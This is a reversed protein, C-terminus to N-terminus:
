NKQYVRVWDVEFKVPFETKSPDGGGAGIALNLIIHQHEHFPNAGDPSQNITRTLDVANMLFDDVYFRMMDPEWDLRWTHFDKAWAEADPYHAREAVKEIPVKVDDWIGVYETKSGWAANALLTGRYFEMIDIEGNSPWPRAEGVTWFAPWSGSRIDIKARCEFRGYTWRHKGKTKIAGSTYEATKRSTRWEDPKAAPNYNTNLKEEREATIILNGDKCIVNQPQYWQLEKNRVFGTEYVWDKQSVPGTVNFEDAWVLTYGQKATALTSALFLATIMARLIDPM